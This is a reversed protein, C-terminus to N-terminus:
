KVRNIRVKKARGAPPSGNLSIESRGVGVYEISKDSSLQLQQVKNSSRKRRLGVRSAYVNERKLDYLGPSTIHM